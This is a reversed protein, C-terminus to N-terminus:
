PRGARRARGIEEAAIAPLRSRLGLLAEVASARREQRRREAVAHQMLGAIIASKNEGAFTRQFERKVKEPVSFNVTAM